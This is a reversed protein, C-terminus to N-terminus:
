ILNHKDGFTLWEQISNGVRVHHTNNLLLGFLINKFIQHMYFGHTVIKNTNNINM